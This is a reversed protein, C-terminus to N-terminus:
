VHARGIQINELDINNNWDVDFIEENVFKTNTVGQEMHEVADAPTEAAEGIARDRGFVIALQDLYPFSKNRLGKAYLHSKLFYHVVM